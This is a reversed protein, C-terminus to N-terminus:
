KAADALITEVQTIIIPVHEVAAEYVISMDIHGYSHFIRNRIGIIPGWLLEPHKNRTEDSIANANEGVQGMAYLVMDQLDDNSLFSEISMGSIRRHARQAFDLMQKLHTIDKDSM